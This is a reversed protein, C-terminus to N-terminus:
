RYSGDKQRSLGLSQMTYVHNKEQWERSLRLGEARQEATMKPAIRAKEEIGATGELDYCMYAKVLDVPTGRGTEYARGLLDWRSFDRGKAAFYRTLWFFGKDDDKDIGRGAYFDGSINLMADASGNLAAKETWKHYEFLNKEFFEGRAYLLSLELQSPPYGSKASSLLYEISKEKTSKSSNEKSMIKYLSFQADLIGESAMETLGKIGKEAESSNALQIYKFYNRNLEPLNEPNKKYRMVYDDAAKERNDYLIQNKIESSAAYAPWILAIIFFIILKKM